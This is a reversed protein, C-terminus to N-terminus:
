KVINCYKNKMILKSLEFFLIYCSVHRKVYCIPNSQIPYDKKIEGDTNELTLIILIDTILTCDSNQESFYINM